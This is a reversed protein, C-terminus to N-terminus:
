FTALYDKKYALPTKGTREKFQKNFNSLTFFGCEFSIESINMEEEHLLKCAHSIRV